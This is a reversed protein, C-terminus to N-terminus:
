QPAQRGFHRTFIAFTTPFVAALGLGALYAGSSVTMLSSGAQIVVLGAGAAFLSILVLAAESMWRLVAPAAARGILLGAWFFSPTITGFGSTSEGLRQAYSAIWGGTAVETGVYIFILVGSLLSCVPCCHM